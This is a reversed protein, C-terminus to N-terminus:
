LKEGIGTGEPVFVTAGILGTHTTQHKKPSKGTVEPVVKKASKRPPKPNVSAVCEACGSSKGLTEGCEECTIVPVAARKRPVYSMNLFEITYM